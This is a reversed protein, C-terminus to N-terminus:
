RRLFNNRAEDGHDTYWKTEKIQERLKEVRPRVEEIKLLNQETQATMTKYHDRNREIILVIREDLQLEKWTTLFNYSVFPNGNNIELLADAIAAGLRHESFGVNEDNAYYAETLAEIMTAAMMRSRLHDEEVIMAACIQLLIPGAEEAAAIQEKIKSSMTPVWPREEAYPLAHHGLEHVTVSTMQSYSNPMITVHNHFETAYGNIPHGKINEVEIQISDPAAKGFLERFLNRGYVVPPVFKSKEEHDKADVKGSIDREQADTMMPELALLAQFPNHEPEVPAFDFCLSMGRGNTLCPLELQLQMLAHFVKEYCADSNTLNGSELKRIVAELDDIQLTLSPPPEYNARFYTSFPQVTFQHRDILLFQPNEATGWLAKREAILIAHPPTACGLLTSVLAGATAISTKTGMPNTM